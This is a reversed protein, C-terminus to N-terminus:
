PAPKLCKKPCGIKKADDFNSVRLENKERLIYLQFVFREAPSLCAVEITLKSCAASTSFPILQVVRVFAHKKTKKSIFEYQM